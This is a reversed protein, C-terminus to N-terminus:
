SRAELAALQALDASPAVRDGRHHWGRWVLAHRRLGPAAFGLWTVAVVYLWFAASGGIFNALIVLAVVKLVYALLELWLGHRALFVPPLLAAQWSFTEPVAAPLAPKGPKPDFIAYLTM